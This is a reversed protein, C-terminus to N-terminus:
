LNRCSGEVRQDEGEATRGQTETARQMTGAVKKFEIENEEKKFWLEEKL